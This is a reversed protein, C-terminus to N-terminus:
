FYEGFLENYFSSRNQCIGTLRAKSNKLQSELTELLKVNEDSSAPMKSITQVWLKGNESFLIKKTMEIFVIKVLEIKCVKM